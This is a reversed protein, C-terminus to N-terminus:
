GNKSVGASWVLRHCSRGGVIDSNWLTHYTANLGVMYGLRCITEWRKQNIKKRVHIIHLLIHIQNSDFDFFFYDLVIRLDFSEHSFYIANLVAISKWQKFYASKHIHKQKDVYVIIACVVLTNISACITNRWNHLTLNYSHSKPKWIVKLYTFIYVILCYYIVSHAYKYPYTHTSHILHINTHVYQLICM